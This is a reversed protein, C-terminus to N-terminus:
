QRVAVICACCAWTMGAAKSLPTVLLFLPLSKLSSISKGTILTLAIQLSQDADPKTGCVLSNFQFGSETIAKEEEMNFNINSGFLLYAFLCCFGLFREKILLNSYHM